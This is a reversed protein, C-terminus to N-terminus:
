RAHQIRSTCCWWGAGAGWIIQLGALVFVHLKHSSRPGSMCTCCMPVHM